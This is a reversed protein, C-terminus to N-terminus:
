KIHFFLDFNKPLIKPQPYMRQIEITGDELLLAIHNDHLIEVDKVNEKFPLIIHDLSVRIEQLIIYRLENCQNCKKCLLIYWKDKVFHKCDKCFVLIMSDKYFVFDYIEKDSKYIIVGDVIFEGDEALYQNHNYTKMVYGHGKSRIRIYKDKLIDSVDETFPTANIFNMKMDFECYLNCIDVYTVTYIRGNIIFIEYGYIKRESLEAEQSNQEVFKERRSFFFSGYFMKRMLPVEAIFKKNTRSYVRLKGQDAVLLRGFKLEKISM